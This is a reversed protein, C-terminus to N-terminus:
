FSSNQDNMHYPSSIEVGDLRWQMYKPSNGRVIIDSSGGDASCTVGAFSSVVRAPDDMGGTYRKTEEPSISRSSIMAMENLAEGKNKNASVVVEDMKIASEVLNVDVVMEKGSKVELNAITKTEYGFYSVQLTIRGIATNELRFIGNGDTVTGILPNTGPISVIAGVLPLKSDTDTITGRVTQSLKQSFALTTFMAIILSTLTLKKM